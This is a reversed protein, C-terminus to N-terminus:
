EILNFVYFYVTNHKKSKRETVSMLNEDLCKEKIMCSKKDILQTNCKSELEKKLYQRTRVTFGKGCPVSCPSWTSWTSVMLCMENPDFRSAEVEQAQESECEGNESLCMEMDDIIETCSAM